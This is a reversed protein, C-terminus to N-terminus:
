ETVSEQQNANYSSLKGELLAPTLTKPMSSVPFSGKSVAVGNAVLPTDTVIIDGGQQIFFHLYGATDIYYNPKEILTYEGTQRDLRYFVLNKTNMNTLDVAAAVEIAATGFSGNQDLHIVQINKNSFQSSFLNKTESTYESRTYVSPYVDPVIQDMKFYLRGELVNANSASSTDFQITLVGNGLQNSKAAGAKAGSAAMDFHERTFLGINSLSITPNKPNQEGAVTAQHNVVEFGVELRGTFGGGKNGGGGSASDTWQARRPSNGGGADRTEDEDAMNVTGGGAPVSVGVGIYVKYSTEVGDAWIVYEFVGNLSPVAVGCTATMDTGANNVTYFKDNIVDYIELTNYNGLYNGEITIIANGKKTDEANAYYSPNASAATINPVSDGVEVQTTIGTAVGNFWVELTYVDNRLPNGLVPHAAFAKNFNATSGDTSIQTTNLVIVEGTEAIHVELPAVDMHLGKIEVSSTGGAASFTDPTASISTVGISPKEVTVTVTHTTVGSADSLTLTYVQDSQTRNAPFTVNTYTTSDYSTSPVPLTFSISGGDSVSLPAFNELFLGDVTFDVDGGNDDLVVNTSPTAGSGSAVGTMGTIGPVRHQVTSYTTGASTTGLFGEFYYLIDAPTMNAPATFSYSATTGDTAVNTANVVTTGLVGTTADPLKFTLQGAAAYQLNKGHITVTIVGGPSSQIIPNVSIQASMTTSGTPDSPNTVTTTVLTPIRVGFPMVTDNGDENLAYGDKNYLKDKRITVSHDGEGFGGNPTVVFQNTGTGASVTFQNAGPTGAIYNYTTGDIKVVLANGVDNATLATTSSASPYLNNGDSGNATVTFDVSTQATNFIHDKAYNFVVTPSNNVYNLTLTDSRNENQQNYSDTAAKKDVYVTIKDGDQLGANPQLDFTWTTAYGNVDPSVSALSSAVYSGNNIVIKADQMNKVPRNFTVTVTVTGAGVTTPSATVGTIEVEQKTVVTTFDRTLNAMDSPGTKNTSVVLTGTYTGQTKGVQLPITITKSGGAPITATASGDFPTGDDFTTPLDYDASGSLFDVTVNKAEESNPNSITVVINDENRNTSVRAFGENLEAPTEPNTPTSNATTAVAIGPLIPAYLIIPQEDPHSPSNGIQNNQPLKAIPVYQSSYEFGYSNKADTYFTVDTGFVAKQDLVGAPTATSSSTTGFYVRGNNINGGKDTSLDLVATAGSFMANGSLDMYMPVDTKLEETQVRVAYQNGLSPDGIYLLNQNGNATGGIKDRASPDASRSQINAPPLAIVTGQGLNKGAYCGGGIGAGHGGGVVDLTGGDIVLVGNWYQGGMASGWADGIGAGHYGAIATINGSRIAINGGSNPRNGAGIAAGATDPMSGSVLVFARGCRAYLSGEGAVYPNDAITVNAGRWVELGAAFSNTANAISSENTSTATAVNAVNTGSAGGSWLVNSGSLYVKVKTNVNDNNGSGKIMMAAGDNVNGSNSTRIDCDELYITVDSLGAAVEIGNNNQASVPVGNTTFTYVGDSTIQVPFSTASTITTTIGATATEAAQAELGGLAGSPVASLVMLFALFGGAKPLIKHRLQTKM